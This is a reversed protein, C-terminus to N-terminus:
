WRTRELDLSGQFVIRYEGTERNLEDVRVRTNSSSEIIAWMKRSLNKPSTPLHELDRLEHTLLRRM